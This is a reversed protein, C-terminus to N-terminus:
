DLNHCVPTYVGSEVSGVADCLSKVVGEVYAEKDAEDMLLDQGLDDAYSGLFALALEIWQQDRTTELLSHTDIAQALM